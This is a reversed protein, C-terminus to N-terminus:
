DRYRALLRRLGKGRGPSPPTLPPPVPLESGALLAAPSEDTLYRIWEEPIEASALEAIMGPPRRVTDHADSAVSHVLGQDFLRRSLDRVDRGFQGAFAGATLSTRMGDAILRPLLAPDRHLSPCREPHALLLRHGREALHGLAEEVGAARPTLPCELLLWPGDGLRLAHLEDDSLELARTLAVEAGARVDVPIREERLSTAVREVGAAITAADNRYHHSVHSTAVITATELEAAARALAVSEALDTPGDDIGPLLHFHLDIM